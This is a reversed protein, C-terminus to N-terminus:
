FHQGGSSPGLFNQELFYLEKPLHAFRPHYVYSLNQARLFRPLLNGSFRSHHKATSQIINPESHLFPPSLGLPLIHYVPMQNPQRLYFQLISILEM